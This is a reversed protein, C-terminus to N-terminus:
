IVNESGERVKDTEDDLEDRLQDAEFEEVFSNDKRLSLWDMRSPCKMLDLCIRGGLKKM